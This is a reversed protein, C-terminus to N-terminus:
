RSLFSASMFVKAQSAPANATGINKLIFNFSPSTGSCYNQTVYASTITLDPCTLFGAPPITTVVFDESNAPFDQWSLDNGCTSDIMAQNLGPGNVKINQEDTLRIESTKETASFLNINNEQSYGQFSLISLLLFIINRKMPAINFSLQTKTHFIPGM